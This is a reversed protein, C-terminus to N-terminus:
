KVKDKIFEEPLDFFCFWAIAIGVIAGVPIGSGCITTAIATENDPFWQTVLNGIGIQFFSTM